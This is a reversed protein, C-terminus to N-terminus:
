SSSLLSADGKVKNALDSGVKRLNNIICGQGRSRLHEAFVQFFTVHRWSTAITPCLFPDTIESRYLISVYKSLPMGHLREDITILSEMDFGCQMQNSRLRTGIREPSHVTYLLEWSVRFFVVRRWSIALM